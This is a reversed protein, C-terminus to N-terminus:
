DSSADLINPNITPIHELRARLYDNPDPLENLDAETDKLIKERYQRVFTPWDVWRQRVERLRQSYEKWYRAMNEGRDSYYPMRRRMYKLHFFLIGACKIQRGDLSFHAREYLRGKTYYRKEPRMVYFGMDGMATIPRMPDVYLRGDYSWLNIGVFAFFMNKMFSLSHVRDIVSALASEIIIHDGDLKTVIQRTTKSLAFNYYNVFSAFHNTPLIKYARTRSKYVAPEYYYYKIKEPYTNALTRAIEPTNDTSTSDHVLILEDFFPLHSEVSARLFEAENYLRYYGSVGPSRGKGYIQKASLSYQWYHTCDPAFHKKLFPYYLEYGKLLVMEPIIRLRRKVSAFIM